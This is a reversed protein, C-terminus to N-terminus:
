GRWARSALWQCSAIVGVLAAYTAMAGDRGFWALGAGLVALGALWNLALNSWWGLVAGGRRLLWRGAAAVLLGVVLAPAAFNLLHALWDLPNM